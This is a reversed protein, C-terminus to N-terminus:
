KGDEAASHGAAAFERLRFEEIIKETHEGLRPSAHGSLLRHGDVTIPCRTTRLQIGGPRGVEQIMGLVQFADHEVLQKWTLVDSCWIDAPELISLWHRTGMTAFHAALVAKIEDRQEFASKPDPYLLL